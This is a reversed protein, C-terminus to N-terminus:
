LAKNYKIMYEIKDLAHSLRRSVTSRTLGVEVAIEIQPIYDLLYMKTIQTDEKGLAANDIIKEWETRTYYKANELARM